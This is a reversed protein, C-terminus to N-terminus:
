GCGGCRQAASSSGHEHGGLSWQGQERVRPRHRTRCVITRRSRVSTGPLCPRAVTTPPSSGGECSESAWEDWLVRSRAQPPSCPRGPVVPEDHAPGSRASTQCSDACGPGGASAFCPSGEASSRALADVCALCSRRGCRPRCRRRRPRRVPSVFRWCAPRLSAASCRPPRTAKSADRRSTHSICVIGPRCSCLCRTHSTAPHRTTIPLCIRKRSSPLQRVADQQRLAPKLM